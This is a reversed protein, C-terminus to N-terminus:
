PTVDCATLRRGLGICDLGHGLGNRSQGYARFHRCTCRFLVGGSRNFGDISRSNLLGNAIILRREIGDLNELGVGAAVKERLVVEKVEFQLSMAVGKGSNM